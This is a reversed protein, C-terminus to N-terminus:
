CAYWAELKRTDPTISTGADTIRSIQRKISPLELAQSYLELAQEWQYSSRLHDAADMIQRLQLSINKRKGKTKSGSPTAPIKLKSNNVM